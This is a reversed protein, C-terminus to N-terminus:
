EASMRLSQVIRFFSVEFEDFQYLCYPNEDLALNLEPTFEDHLMTCSNRSYLQVKKSNLADNQVLKVPEQANFLILVNTSLSQM